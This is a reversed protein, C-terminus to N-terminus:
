DQMRARSEAPVCGDNTKAGASRPFIYIGGGMFRAECASEPAPIVPLFAKRTEKAKESMRMGSPFHSLGPYSDLHWQKRVFHGQAFIEISQAETKKETLHSLPKSIEQGTPSLSVTPSNDQVAGTM